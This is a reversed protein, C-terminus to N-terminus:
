GIKPRTCAEGTAAVRAHFREWLGGHHERISYAPQGYTVILHDLLSIDLIAAAKLLQCTTEIDEKSPSLHSGSPHNHCALIAYSNALIAAKFVERPHVLSAVLTGHSVEHLGIVEHKANLHLTVFREEASLRLPSLLSEADTPKDIRYMQAPAEAEYVMAMRIKPLHYTLLGSLDLDQSKEPM